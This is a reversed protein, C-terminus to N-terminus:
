PGVVMGLAEANERIRDDLTVLLLSPEEAHFVLATSLHLSDLTRVPEVPFRLRARALV